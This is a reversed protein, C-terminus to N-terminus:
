ELKDKRGSVRIKVFSKFTLSDWGFPGQVCPYFMTNTWIHSYQQIIIADLLSM